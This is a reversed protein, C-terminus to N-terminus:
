AGKRGIKRGHDFLEGQYINRDIRLYVVLLQIISVEFCNLFIKLNSSSGFTSALFPFVAKFFEAKAVEQKQLFPKFQEQSFVAFECETECIVSINNSDTTSQGLEGCSEGEHLYHSIEGMRAACETFSELKLAMEPDHDRRALEEVLSAPLSYKVDRVKLTFKSEGGEDKSSM